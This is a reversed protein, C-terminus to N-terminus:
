AVHNKMKKLMIQNSRYTDTVDFYGEKATEVIQNLLSRCSMTWDERESGSIRQMLWLADAKLAIHDALIILDLWKRGIMSMIRVEGSIASNTASCVGLNQMQQTIKNEMALLHSQVIACEDLLRDMNYRAAEAVDVCDEMNMCDEIYVANRETIYFLKAFFSRALVTNFSVHVVEKSKRKLIWSAKAMAQGFPDKIREISM